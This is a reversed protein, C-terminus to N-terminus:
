RQVSLFAHHIPSLTALCMLGRAMKIDHENCFVSTSFCLEYNRMTPIKNFNNFIMFGFNEFM